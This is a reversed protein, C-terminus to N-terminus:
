ERKKMVEAARALSEAVTASVVAEACEVLCEAKRVSPDAVLKVGSAFPAIGAEQWRSLDQPNLRVVIDRRSPISRLAERVIPEIRYRGDEIDQALVKGAIDLALTVLQSEASRLAEAELARIADVASEMAARVQDLNTRQEHLWQREEGLTAGVAPTAAAVQPGGAASQAAVSAPPPVVRASQLPGPVEFDLTEVV